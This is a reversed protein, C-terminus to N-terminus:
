RELPAQGRSFGMIVHLKSIEDKVKQVEKSIGQLAEIEAKLGQYAVNLGGLESHLENFEQFTLEVRDPFKRELFALISKLLKKM